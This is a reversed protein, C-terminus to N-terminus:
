KFRPGSVHAKRERANRLMVERQKWFEEDENDDWMEDSIREGEAFEARDQKRQDEVREPKILDRQPKEACDLGDFMGTTSGFLNKEETLETRLTDTCYIKGQTLPTGLNFTIRAEKDGKVNDEDLPFYFEREAMAERLLQIVGLQMANNEAMCGRAYDKWKRMFEFIKNFAVPVEIKGIFGDLCVRDDEPTIAWLEIATKSKKKNKSKKSAAWDCYLKMNCWKLEFVRKDGNEEFLVVKSEIDSEPDHFCIAEKIPYQKFDSGELETPKNQYQYMFVWMDENMIGKLFELGIEEPFISEGDQISPRWYISWKKDPREFIFDEDETYGHFRRVNPVIKEMYYDEMSYFTFTYLIKSKKPSDVLPPVASSLWTKKKDMDANGMFDKDLDEISIPDDILIYDFHQSASTAGVGKATVTAAVASKTRAPTVWMTDNWVTHGDKMYEPWFLEVLENSEFISRVSRNFTAAFDFISSLILIKVNPDRVVLWASLGMTRVTSKYHGRGIALASHAGDGLCEDSQCYNAMDLHLHDTLRDFPGFPGCVYKLFFWLNVLALQKMFDLIKEMDQEGAFHERIREGVVFAYEEGTCEAEFIPADKHPKIAYKRKNGSLELEVWKDGYVEPIIM